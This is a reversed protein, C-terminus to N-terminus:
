SREIRVRIREILRAPPPERRCRSRVLSIMTEVADARERCTPCEELHRRMREVPLSGREGDVWLFVLRHRCKV